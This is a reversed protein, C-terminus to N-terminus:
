AAPFGNHRDLDYNPLVRRIRTEIFNSRHQAHVIVLRIGDEHSFELRRRRTRQNHERQRLIAADCTTQDPFRLTPPEFYVDHRDM